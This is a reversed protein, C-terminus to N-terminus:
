SRLSSDTGSSGGSLMAFAPLELAVAGVLIGGTFQFKGPMVLSAIGGAACGTTKPPAEVVGPHGPPYTGFGVVNPCLVSSSSSFAEIKGTGLSAGLVICGATGLNLVILLGKSEYV